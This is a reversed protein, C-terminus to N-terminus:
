PYYGVINGQPPQYGDPRDNNWRGCPFTWLWVVSYANHEAALDAFVSHSAVSIHVVVTFRFGNRRNLEWMCLRVDRKSCDYLAYVRLQMTIEVDWFSVAGVVRIITDMAVCSAGCCFHAPYQSLILICNCVNNSTIAPRAFVHIQIADFLLLSISYYRINAVVLPIYFKTDQSSMTLGAGQIGNLIAKTSAYKEPPLPYHQSFVSQGKPKIADVEREGRMNVMRTETVRDVARACGHVEYEAARHVDASRPVWRRQERVHDRCLDSQELLRLSKPFVLLVSLALALVLM